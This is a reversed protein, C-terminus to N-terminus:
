CCGAATWWCGVQKGVVKQVRTGYCVTTNKKKDCLVMFAGGHATITEDTLPAYGIHFMTSKNILANCIITRNLIRIKSASYSFGQFQQLNHIVHGTYDIFRQCLGLLMRNVITKNENNRLAPHPAASKVRIRSQTQLSWKIWRSFM